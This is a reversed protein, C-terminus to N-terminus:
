RSVLEREGRQRRLTRADNAERPTGPTESVLILVSEKTEAETTSLAVMDSEAAAASERSEAPTRTPASQIGLALTTAVASVGVASTNARRDREGEVARSSAM